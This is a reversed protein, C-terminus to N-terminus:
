RAPFGITIGIIALASGAIAVIGAETEAPESIEAVAFGGVALAAGVAVFWWWGGGRRTREPETLAAGAVFVALCAIRAGTSFLGGMVIAAAAATLILTLQLRRLSM